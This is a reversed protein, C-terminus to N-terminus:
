RSCSAILPAITNAATTEADMGQARMDIIAQAFRRFPNYALSIDFRGPTTRPGQFRPSATTGFFGTNDFQSLIRRSPQSAALTTEGTEFFGHALATEDYGSIANLADKQHAEVADLQAKVPALAPGDFVHDALMDDVQKLNTTLPTILTELNGLDLFYHADPIGWGTAASLFSDRYIRNFGAPAQALTDDNQLLAAIAPGVRSRLASCLPTSRVNAIVKLSALPAPGPAPTPAVVTATALVISLLM